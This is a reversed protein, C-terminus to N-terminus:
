NFCQCTCTPFSYRWYYGGSSNSIRHISDSFHFVYMISCLCHCFPPLNAQCTQLCYMWAHSSMTFLTATNDILFWSHLWVKASMALIHQHAALVFLAHSCLKTVASEFFLVPYCNNFATLCDWTAYCHSATWWVYARLMFASDIYKGLHHVVSMPIGSLMGRLM